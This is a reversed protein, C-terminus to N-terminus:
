PLFFLLAPGDSGQDIPSADRLAARVGAAHGSALASAVAVRDLGNDLRHSAVLQRLYWRANEPDRRAKALLEDDDGALALVNTFRFDLPDRIEDWGDDDRARASFSTVKGRKVLAWLLPAIDRVLQRQWRKSFDCPRRLAARSADRDVGLVHALWARTYERQVRGYILEKEVWQCVLPSKRLAERDFGIFEDSCYIETLTELFAPAQVRLSRNWRLYESRHREHYPTTLTSLTTGADVVDNLSVTSLYWYDVGVTAIAETLLHCFVWDEFDIRKAHLCGFRLSPRLERIARYAWVHLYDHVAFMLEGLLRDSDNLERVDITPDQLWTAIRSRAAIFIHGTAPNFGALNLPITKTYRWEADIARTEIRVCPDALMTAVLPIDLLSKTM